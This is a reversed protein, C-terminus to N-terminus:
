QSSFNELMWVNGDWTQARYALYKGDPSPLPTILFQTRPKRLLLYVKGASTIHLLSFSDPLESSVFFGKSDATWAVSQFSGWRSDVPVDHWVRESLALVKIRYDANASLQSGDPSVHFMFFRQQAIGTLKTLQDGKGRVPDLLYFAVDKAEERALVCPSGTARPCVFGYMDADELVREPLGGTASVRMLRWPPPAGGPVLPAEQEMYLIWKGDPSLEAGSQRGSGGVIRDAITQKLGQRFIQLKGNRDSSFLIGQSDMTWGSPYDNRDDLTFRRIAKLRSDNTALEGLYIDHQIQLKPFVLRRGDTTTTLAHVIVHERWNTLQKLAGRSEATNPDVRLEWLNTKKSNITSEPTHTLPFVIRWDPLWCLPPLGEVELLREFSNSKPLSSESLLTKAPGGTAPRVEISGSTPDTRSKRFQYAIWRGDPSWVPPGIRQGQEPTVLNRQAEGNIGSIWLGGRGIFTMWKGDRSIAPSTADDRLKRPPAEGVVTIMWIARPSYTSALLKGGEPFWSLGWVNRINHPLTVPYTEESDLSRVFLGARDFYALYKGDSSIAASSVWNESSNYTLQQETPEPVHQASRRLWRLGGMGLGLLMLLAGGGLLWRRGRIRVTEPKKVAVALPTSRGSETDPTLRTLDSRIESASQYRMERNKEFAKEIILDLGSPLDPNLRSPPTPNGHLVGDFILATTNGAFAPRGTAMEYLVAGFSFLDTRADLKEGRAQEPSMYAVTGLVMGVETIASRTAVQGSDEGTLVPEIQALGFDLIKVRGDETLFINEPKLDRHTIGKGHAAALGEAVAMAIAVATCWNLPGRNLRARLTEGHLLETVAYAIGREDGFDHIALINPHSLAAVAKAEREFRALAEPHQSLHESLVKVAVARDLRTDTARYVEGMGGGGLWSEIKYHGLTCGIMGERRELALARAAVELAPRKMLTATQTEFSLLSEVERRLEDDGACVQKLFGDRESPEQERASHYLREIHSWREATM